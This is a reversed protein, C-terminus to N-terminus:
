IAYAVENMDEPLGHEDVIAILCDAIGDAMVSITEASEEADEYGYEVAVHDYISGFILGELDDNINESTMLWELNSEIDDMVAWSINEIHCSM